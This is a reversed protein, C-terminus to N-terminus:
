RQGIPTSYRGSAPRPSTRRRKITREETALRCGCADVGLAADNTGCFCNHKSFCEPCAWHRCAPRYYWREWSPRHDRADRGNEAPVNVQALGLPLEDAAVLLSARECLADGPAIAQAFADARKGLPAAM